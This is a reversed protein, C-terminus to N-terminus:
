DYVVGSGVGAPVTFPENNFGDFQVQENTIQVVAPKAQQAVDRIAASFQDLAAAPSASAATPAPAATANPVAATPEPAQATTAAAATTPSASMTTLSSCGALSVLMLLLPLLYVIPRRPGYINLQGSRPTTSKM